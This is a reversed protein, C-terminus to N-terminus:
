FPGEDLSSGVHRSHRLGKLEGMPEHGGDDSSAQM